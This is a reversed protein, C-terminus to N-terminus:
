YEGTQDFLCARGPLPLRVDLHRLGCDREVETWSGPPICSVARMETADNILMCFETICYVFLIDLLGVYFQPVVRIKGDFGTVRKSLRGTANKVLDAALEAVLKQKHVFPCRYNVNREGVHVQIPRGPQAACVAGNGSCKDDVEVRFVRDPLFMHGDRYIDQGERPKTAVVWVEGEIDVV